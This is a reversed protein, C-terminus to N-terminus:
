PTRSPERHRFRALDAALAAELDRRGAQRAAALADEQWRVAENFRGVEALAKALAAVHLVDREAAVLREALARAREGDRIEPDPAAALLRALLNALFRDGSRPRPRGPSPGSSTTSRSSSTARPSRWGAAAPM